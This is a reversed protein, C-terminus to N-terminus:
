DCNCWRPDTFCCAVTLPMNEKGCHTCRDFGCNHCCPTGSIYYRTNQQCRQCFTSRDACTCSQVFGIDFSTGVLLDTRVRRCNWCFPIDQVVVDETDMEVHDGLDGLDESDDEEDFSDDSSGSDSDSDSSFSSSTSYYDDEDLKARKPNRGQDCDEHDDEGEGECDGEYGYARKLQLSGMILHNLHGSLSNVM